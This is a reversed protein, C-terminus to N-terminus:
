ISDLGGEETAGPTQQGTAMDSWDRGGHDCEREEENQRQDGKAKRKCSCKDNSKLDVQVTRFPRRM